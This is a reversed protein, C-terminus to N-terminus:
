RSPVWPLPPHGSRYRRMNQLALKFWTFVEEWNQCVPSSPTPRTKRAEEQLYSVIRKMQPSTKKTLQELPTQKGLLLAAQKHYEVYIRRVSGESLGDFDQGVVDLWDTAKGEIIYRFINQDQEIIKLVTEWRRHNARRQQQDLQRLTAQEDTPLGRFVQWALRDTRWERDTKIYRQLLLFPRESAARDKLVGDWACGRTGCPGRQLHGAFQKRSFDRAYSIIASNLEQDEAPTPHFRVQRWYNFRTLGKPLLPERRM